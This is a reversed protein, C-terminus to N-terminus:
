FELDLPYLDETLLPSGEPILMISIENVTSGGAKRNPFMLYKNDPYDTTSSVLLRDATFDLQKFDFGTLKIRNVIIGSMGPLTYCLPIAKVFGIPSSSYTAQVTRMWNPMVYEDTLFNADLYSKMSDFVRNSEDTVEIYVVEYIINGSIDKSVATKLGNFLVRQEQFIDTLISAYSMLSGKQIGYELVFKMSLQVGFNPDQPRYLLSNEFTHQDSIFDSFLTRSASTMYPSIHMQIYENTNYENVTIVFEKDVINTQYADTAEVTFKYLKDITTNGNDLTFAGFKYQALDFYTQSNYKVQGVITGDSALILGTPLRGSTLRYRIATPVTTHKAVIAFESVYGPFIAGLNSPTVFELTNDVDGLISLAFTRDRFTQEGTIQDTKILRVTFKYATTFIPYYPLQAFLVGSDPDLDFYLPHVSPTGDINTTPTTWDYTTPGTNPDPDYTALQIVQYNNARFYGLNVPSIWAPTILYSSDATYISPEVVILTTDARFSRPDEIKIQFERRSSAIGDTVTVYFPYIKALFDPRHNAGGTTTPLRDYPYNDYTETDYGGSASVLADLGLVDAVYGYLRGDETLTLGPPITGDMDGIYYRLKQGAPLIDYTANFQYDVYSKNVIYAQGSIGLSLYGAPTIWVPDTAGQTDIIFTRDTIGDSNTARLVIQSTLKQAVSFPAGSITGTNSLYLGSPLTGSILSFTSTTQTALTFSTYTRETATGLFGSLTIWQPLAM